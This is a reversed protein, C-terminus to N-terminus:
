RVYLATSKVLSVTRRAGLHSHAPVGCFQSLFCIVGHAAKMFAGTSKQFSMMRSVSCVHSSLIVPNRIPKQKLGLCKLHLHAKVCPRMENISWLIWLHMAGDSLSVVVM